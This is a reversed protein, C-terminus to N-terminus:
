TNSGCSEGTNYFSSSESDIYATGEIVCFSGGFGGGGDNYVSSYVTTGFCDQYNFNIYEPTSGFMFIEYIKCAPPSYCGNAQSNFEIVRVGCSSGSCPNAQSQNVVYNNGSCYPAGSDVCQSSYNCAVGTPPGGVYIYGGNNVYYGNYTSSCSNTDRFVATNSCNYCTSYGQDTYTPSTSAGCSPSCTQNVETIGAYSNDCVYRLERMQTTGSCYLGYYTGACTQGCTCSNFETVGTNRYEGTCQNRERNGLRNCGDCTPDSVFCCCAGNANAFNQGNADRDACAAATADALAAGDAAAQSVQSTASRTYSASTYTVTNSGYCNAGCNNRVYGGSCTASQTSSFTCVGYTNAFNQLNVQLQAEAYTQAQNNADAQSVFSRFLGSPSIGFVDGPNITVTSPTSGAPCNNRTRTVSGSLAAVTYVSDYFCAANSPATTTNLSVFNGGSLVYYNNATASNVNIDRYVPLNANNYCTSFGQSSINQVRNFDFYNTQDSFVSVFANTASFIGRNTISVNETNSKVVIKFNPTESAAMSSTKSFTITQGSVNSTWGSVGQSISVFTLTSPLTDTVVPNVASVGNTIRPSLTYESNTNFPITGSGASSSKGISLIPHQMRWPTNNTVPSNNAYLTTITTPASVSYPNTASSPVSQGLVVAVTWAVPNTSANYVEISKTITITVVQGAVTASAESPLLHITSLSVYSFGAPMTFSVVTNAVTPCTGTNKVLIAYVMSFGVTYISNSADYFNMNARNVESLALWANYDKVGYEVSLTPNLPTVDRKVVIENNPKPSLTPNAASVFVYQNLRGKTIVKDADGGLPIVQGPKPVIAGATVQGQLDGHTVDENSAISSWLQAM